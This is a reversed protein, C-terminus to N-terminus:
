CKLISKAKETGAPYDAHKNSCGFNSCSTQNANSSSTIFIDHGGGFTPGYSSNCYVAYAANTYMLKFPKNEKNVLSFIFAKFDTYGNGTSDWAKKVFGGFIKGDTSKIM